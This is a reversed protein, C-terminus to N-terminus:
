LFVSSTSISQFDYSKGLLALHTKVLSEKSHDMQKERAKTQTKIKLLYFFHWLCVLWDTMLRTVLHHYRPRRLANSKDTLATPIM